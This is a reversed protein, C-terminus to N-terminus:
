LMERIAAIVEGTQPRVDRWLFFSEAAQEVLMGLGDVCHTAGQERAFQMFATPKPGYMMDYCLSNASIIDAPIDPVEGHLSASTANIIIDWTQAQGNLSTFASGKINGLRSFAHALEHARDPTRNAILVLAPHEILLPELVGRAAGGAGLLLVTKGQL